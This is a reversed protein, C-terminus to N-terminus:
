NCGHLGEIQQDVRLRLDLIRERWMWIRQFGGSLISRCTASTNSCIPKSHARMRM